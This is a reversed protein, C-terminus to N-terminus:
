IVDEYKLGKSRLYKLMKKLAREHVTRISSSNKDMIRAIEKLSLGEFYRMHIIQKERDNLISVLEAIDGNKEQSYRRYEDEFALSCKVSDVFDDINSNTKIKRFYDIMTNRAIAFIWTSFSAKREDFRGINEVVKMFISSVLDDSVVPNNM